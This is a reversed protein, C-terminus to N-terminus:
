ERGLRESVGFDDILADEVEIGQTGLRWMHLTIIVHLEASYEDVLQPCVLLSLAVLSPLASTFFLRFVQSAVDM